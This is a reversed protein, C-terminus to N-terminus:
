RVINLYVYPFNQFQPTSLLIKLLFTSFPFIHTSQPNKIKAFLLVIRFRDELQTQQGAKFKQDNNDVQLGSM